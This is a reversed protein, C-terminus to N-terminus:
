LTGAGPQWVGPIPTGVTKAPVRYDLGLFRALTAAFRTQDIAEGGKMEGGAPTDPGLVMFWTENSHAASRGHSTWQEELGRGHDPVILFTTKDKYFPDAQMTKWLQGIMADLNRADELYHDYQGSHAYEDTDGFDLYVVRPHRAQIYAKALAYVNADLREEWGWIKPTFHQMENALIEAPTLDSGEIDQWPVNVFMGNRRPNLCRGTADWCAFTVVKGRLDRQNNLFELVNPNPNDPFENSNIQEDVFGSLVEARGPYSVWYPNTVQVRSGQDRNGYLQGHRALYGWTFPMLKQRRRSLDEDWFNKLRQLSDTSNFRPNCLLAHDAGRFLEQWRYGDILILVVNQTQRSPQGQAAAALCLCLLAILRSRM